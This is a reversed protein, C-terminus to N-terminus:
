KQGPNPLDDFNTGGKSQNPPAVPKVPPPAVPKLAPPAIPKEPPAQVVKKPAKCVHKDIECSSSMTRCLDYSEQESQFMTSITPERGSQAKEIEELCERLGQEEKDSAIVAIHSQDDPSSHGPSLAWKLRRQFSSRRESQPEEVFDPTSDTSSRKGNILHRMNEQINVNEAFGFNKALATFETSSMRSNSMASSFRRYESQSMAGPNKPDQSFKPDKKGARGRYKTCFGYAQIKAIILNQYKEREDGPVIVPNAKFPITQVATAGLLLLWKDAPIVERDPFKKAFYEQIGCSVCQLQANQLTASERCSFEDYAALVPSSTLALGLAAVLFKM